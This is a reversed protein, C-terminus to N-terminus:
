VEQFIFFENELDQFHGQLKGIDPFTRSIISGMFVEITSSFSYQYM